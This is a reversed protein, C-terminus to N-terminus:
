RSGGEYAERSIQWLHFCNKHLNVYEARPPLIMVMFADDPVLDYRAKSIEDWTPYRMPHSVSIHWAGDDKSVLAQISGRKFVRAGPIPVPCRFEVWGNM